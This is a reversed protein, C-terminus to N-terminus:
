IPGPGWTAGEFDNLRAIAMHDHAEGFNRNTLACPVSMTCRHLCKATTQYQAETIAVHIETTKGQSKTINKYDRKNATDAGLCLMSATVLCLMGSNCNCVYISVTRKFVAVRATDPATLIRRPKLANETRPM